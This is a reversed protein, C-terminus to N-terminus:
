KKPPAVFTSQEYEPKVIKYLSRTWACRTSSAIITFKLSPVIFVMAHEANWIQGPWILSHRGGSVSVRIYRVTESTGVFFAYIWPRLWCSALRPLQRIKIKIKKKRKKKQFFRKISFIIGLFFQSTLIFGNLFYDRSFIPNTLIFGASILHIFQLSFCKLSTLENWTFQSFRNKLHKLICITM